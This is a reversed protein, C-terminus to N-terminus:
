QYTRFSESLTQYLNQIVHEPIETARLSTFPRSVTSSSGRDPRGAETPVLVFTLRTFSKMRWSQRKVTRIIASSLLILIRDGLNNCLIQGHCFHTCLHKWFMKIVILFRTSVSHRCFHKFPELNFWIKKSSDYCSVFTPTLPYSGSVFLCLSSHRVCCDGLCFLARMFLYFILFITM